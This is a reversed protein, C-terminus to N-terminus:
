NAEPAYVLYVYLFGLATLIMLLEPWHPELKAKWTMTPINARIRM